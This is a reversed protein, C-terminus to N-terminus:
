KKTLHDGTGQKRQGAIQKLLAIMEENQAIIMRSYKIQAMDAIQSVQVAGRAGIAEIEFSNYIKEADKLRPSDEQASVVATFLTFCIFLISGNMYKENKLLFQLDIITEVM